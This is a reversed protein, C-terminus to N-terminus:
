ELVLYTLSLKPMSPTPGVNQMRFYHTNRGLPNSMISYRRRKEYVGDEDMIGNDELLNASSVFTYPNADSYDAEAFGELKVDFANLKVSILLITKSLELSFQYQESQNLYGPAEHEVVVRQGQNAGGAADMWMLTNNPGSILMMGPGEAQPIKNHSMMGVITKGEENVSTVIPSEFEVDLPEGGGGGGFDAEKWTARDPELQYLQGPTACWVLMGPKKAMPHLKDREEITNLCRFGGRVMLDEVLFPLAPSIPVLFSSMVVAM